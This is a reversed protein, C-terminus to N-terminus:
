NPFVWIPGPPSSIALYPLFAPSFTSFAMCSIFRPSNFLPREPLFTVLLFCAIAIPSDSARSAPPFTGEAFFPEFFPPFFLELFPEDFFRLELLFYILAARRPRGQKSGQRDSKNQISQYDQKLGHM